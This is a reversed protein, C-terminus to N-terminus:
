NGKKRPKMRGGATSAAEGIGLPNKPNGTLKSSLMRWPSAKRTNEPVNTEVFSEKTLGTVIELQELIIDNEITNSFSEAVHMTLELDYGLSLDEDYALVLMNRLLQLKNSEKESQLNILMNIEHKVALMMPRSDVNDKEAIDNKEDYRAAMQAEIEEDTPNMSLVSEHNIETNIETISSGNKDIWQQELKYM